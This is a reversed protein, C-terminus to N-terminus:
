IDRGLVAGQCQSYRCEHGNPGDSLSSCKSGLSLKPRRVVEPGYDFLVTYYALRPEHTGTSIDIWEPLIEGRYHDFPAPFGM